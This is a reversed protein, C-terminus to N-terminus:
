CCLSGGGGRMREFLAFLGPLATLATASAITLRTKMRKM